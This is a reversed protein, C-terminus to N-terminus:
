KSNPYPCFDEKLIDYKKRIEIIKNYYDEYINYIYTNLREPNHWEDKYGSYWKNNKINFARKDIM